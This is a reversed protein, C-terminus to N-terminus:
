EVVKVPKWVFVTLKKQKALDIMNRTGPSVGDWVAVLAEAVSAMQSNRVYGASKGFQNWDAPYREVPIERNAAWIEGARDVGMATGSIVVTPDFGCEKMALNVENIGLGRSGAIITRM